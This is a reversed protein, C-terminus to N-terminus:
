PRVDTQVEPIIPALERAVRLVRDPSPPWDLVSDVGAQHAMELVDLRVLRARPSSAFVIPLAPQLRRVEEILAIADRPEYAATVLLLEIPELRLLGGFRHRLETLDTEGARYSVQYGAEQLTDRIWHVVPPSDGAVLVSPPELVTNVDSSV